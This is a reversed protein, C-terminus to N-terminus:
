AAGPAAAEKLVYPRAALRCKATPSEEPPPTLERLDFRRPVKAL